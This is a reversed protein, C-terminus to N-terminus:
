FQRCEDGCGQLGAWTFGHKWEASSVAKLIAIVWMHSFAQCCVEPRLYVRNLSGPIGGVGAQINKEKKVISSYKSNSHTQPPCECTGASMYLDSTLKPSNNKKKKGKM